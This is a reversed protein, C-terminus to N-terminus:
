FGDFRHEELHKRIAAIGGRVQRRSIGLDRAAATPTGVLLREWLRRLPEPLTAIATRFRADREADAARVPPGPADDPVPVGEPDGSAGVADLSRTTSEGARKRARRARLLMAVATDIVRAVFTNLSARRIDFHHAQKLLELTLEQEIDDRDSGRLERRQALQRAKIRIVKRAYDNLVDPRSEAGM